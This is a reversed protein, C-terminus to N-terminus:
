PSVSPITTSIPDPLRHTLHAYGVIMLMHRHTNSAPHSLPPSLSRSVRCRHHGPHHPLRHRPPPKHRPATLSAAAPPLAGARPVAAASAAAPPSAGATPSAAAAATRSAAAPPSVAATLSATSNTVRFRTTVSWSHALRCGVSRGDLSALIAITLYVRRTAMEASLPALRCPLCRPSILRCGLPASM